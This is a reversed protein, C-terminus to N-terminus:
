GAAASWFELTADESQQGGVRALLNNDGDLAVAYPFGSGGFAILAENLESDRMIDGSFAETEFWASAPYNPREANLATSVAILEVGEPFSGENVLRQVLPLEEQCHPCWHALFYVIKTTGDAGVSFETGDHRQGTLTPATEGLGADSGDFAPLPAGDITVASTQATADHDLGEVSEHAPEATATSATGTDGGDSGCAAAILALAALLVGLRRQRRSM